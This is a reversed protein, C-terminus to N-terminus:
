GNQGAEGARCASPWGQVVYATDGPCVVGPVLVEAMCGCRGNIADKLRPNIADLVYCPQRKATLRLLATGMRLLTGVPLSQVGLGRVNLNEGTAGPVLRYGEAVLAHMVELDLISVARDPRCHKAHTHGDGELGQQCIHAQRVPLKPIGGPSICVAVVEGVRWPGTHTCVLTGGRTVIGLAPPGSVRQAASASM